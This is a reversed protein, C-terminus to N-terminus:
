FNLAIGIGNQSANISWYAQSNIICSSNYVEASRHMQTYGVILTPICAIECALAIYGAYPAWWAFGIDLGVGAGLLIWGIASIGKGHKYQNYADACNNKLFNAYVDGRMETGNYYYRNGTRIVYSTQNNYNIKNNTTVSVPVEEKPLAKHSGNALIISDIENAEFVYVPGDQYDFEVFKVQTSSIELIKAPIKQSDITIITDQAFVTTTACMIIFLLIKKM